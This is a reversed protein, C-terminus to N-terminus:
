KLMLKTKGSIQYPTKGKDTALLGHMTVKVEYTGAPFPKGKPNSTDSPGTWNRGDWEFAHTYTGKKLSNAVETPPQALGFDLLCYVQGNGSIHERPHMGSPGAPEAFSPGFPRAIVGEHDKTVIVKYQIKVGKAVQDLTYTYGDKPFEILVIEDMIPRAKDAGEKTYSYLDVRYIKGEGKADGPPEVLVLICKEALEPSLEFQVFHGSGDRIARREIPIMGVAKGGEMIELRTNAPAKSSDIAPKKVQVTFNLRDYAGDSVTVAFDDNARARHNRKNVEITDYIQSRVPSALIIAACSILLFRHM